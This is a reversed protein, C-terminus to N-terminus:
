TTGADMAIKLVRAHTSRAGLLDQHQELYYAYDTSGLTQDALQSDKTLVELHERAAKDDAPALQLKAGVASASQLGSSDADRLDLVKASRSKATGLAVHAHVAVRRTKLRDAAEHLTDCARDLTRSGDFALVRGVDDSFFDSAFNEEEYSRPREVRLLLPTSLIDEDDLHLTIQVMYEGPEALDWGNRGVAVFLSDTIFQNPALAKAKHQFFRRTFPVHERAPKGKKKIIVTMAESDALVREDVLQPEDTINTLKLDLVVPELFELTANPRPPRLELKFTPEISVRDHQFGHDDFWDANGHQVFREPAHRLFLLEQDSFRFAFNAFFASQGGSVNYPYNMFSRAESENALPIWSTGLSKQWSHALNFTHGMEHVATWLRMRRVWAAPAPDGAPANAIFADVFIATGQRHNPGIDDFMIGGLSSGQEHLSAFFTWFAWKPANGFRSWYVQMADHMEQDSWRANGGAGAIPVVNGSNTRVNFGARRFVTPISLTENPLTAPRNPHAHTQIDLVAAVGQACDFELNLPRFYPSKYGLTRMLPAGGGGTYIITASTPLIGRTVKITVMTYPFTTTNGDKFWINGSWTNPGTNALAAIWHLIPSRGYWTGSATRQSFLGDVDLRLEERRVTLLTPSIAADRGASANEYDAQTAGMPLPGPIPIQVPGPRSVALSAEYLGSAPRLLPLSPILPTAAAAEADGAFALEGTADSDPMDLKNM